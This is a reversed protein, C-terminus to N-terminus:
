EDEDDELEIVYGCENCEVEYCSDEVEGELEAGCERCTLELTTSM